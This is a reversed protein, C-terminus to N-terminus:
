RFEPLVFPAEPPGCGKITFFFPNKSSRFEDISINCANLAISIPPEWLNLELLIEKEKKLVAFPECIRM